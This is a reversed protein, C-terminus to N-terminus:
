EKERRTGEEEVCVICCCGSSESVMDYVEPVAEVILSCVGDGGAVGLFVMASLSYKAAAALSCCLSSSRVMSDMDEAIAAATCIELPLLAEESDSPLADMMWVSRVFFSCFRRDLETSENNPPPPLPPQPLLPLFGLTSATRELLLLVAAPLGGVVVEGRALRDDVEELFRGALSVHNAPSPIESCMAELDLLSNSSPRSSSM